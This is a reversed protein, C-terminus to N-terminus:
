RQTRCENRGLDVGARGLLIGDNVDHGSHKPTGHDLSQEITLGINLFKGAWVHQPM